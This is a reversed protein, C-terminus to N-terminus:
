AWCPSGRMTTRPFRLSRGTAVCWAGLLLPALGFRYAVSVEPAVVGLQYKIALWTSGWIL